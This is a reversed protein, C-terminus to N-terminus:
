YDFMGFMNQAYHRFLNDDINFIINRLIVYLLNLAM